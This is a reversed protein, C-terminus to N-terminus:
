ADAEDEPPRPIDAILKGYHDIVTTEPGNPGFSTLTVAPESANARGWADVQERTLFRVMAEVEAVTQTPPATQILDGEEDVVERGVIAGSGALPQDHGEIKFFFRQPKMLGEDDVFLFEGTDWSRAAAIYGGVMRQLDELGAYEVEEIRRNTADIYIAKM